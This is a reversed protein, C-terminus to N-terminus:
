AFTVSYDFSLMWECNDGEKDPNEEKLKDVTASTMTLYTGSRLVEEVTWDIPSVAGSATVSQGTKGNEIKISFKFRAAQLPGAEITIWTHRMNERKVFVRHFRFRKQLWFLTLWDEHDEDDATDKNKMLIVEGEGTGELDHSNSMEQYHANLHSIKM